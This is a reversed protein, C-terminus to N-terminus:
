RGLANRMDDLGGGNTVNTFGARELVGKARASRNGSRCYVVVPKTKDGGVLGEVEAIRSEVEDVPILKAGEIHGSDWEDQSRVDLVVAGQAVLDKVSPTAKAKAVPESSPGPAASPNPPSSCGVLAALAILVGGKWM